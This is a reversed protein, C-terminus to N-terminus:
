HTRRKRTNYCFIPKTYKAMSKLATRHTYKLSIFNKLTNVPGFLRMSDLFHQSQCFRLFFDLPTHNLSRAPWHVPSGQGILLDPLAKDLCDRTEQRYHPPAVDHHFISNVTLHSLISSFYHKLFLLYNDFTSFLDFFYYSRIVHGISLACSM